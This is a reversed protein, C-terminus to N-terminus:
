LPAPLDRRSFTWFAFAFGISGLAILALDCGIPGLDPFTGFSASDFFRWEYSPDKAIKASFGVPEYAAFFTFNLLWRCGDVALGTLEVVTQFVYVSVILGVTRWRFRDISSAATTIGTLFFGFCFYNIAASRYIVPQVFKTLPVMKPENGQRALPVDFGFVPIRWRLLNPGAEVEAHTIGV